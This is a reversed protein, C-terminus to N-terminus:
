EVREVHRKARTPADPRWIRLLMPALTQAIQRQTEMPLLLWLSPATMKTPAPLRAFTQAVSRRPNSQVNM